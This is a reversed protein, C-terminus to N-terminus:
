DDERLEGGRANGSLIDASKKVARIISLYGTCRCINGSLAERIEEEEPSPNKSLLAYTTMVMGPTCYGCQIAGEDIFAQQIPHLRGKEVLGEVTLIEAGEAERALILCSKQPLGNMIVTCAGCEGEECGRKLSTVGYERLATLLTTRDEVVLTTKRGNITLTVYKDKM